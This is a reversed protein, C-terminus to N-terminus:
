SGLPDKDRGPRATGRSIQTREEPRSRSDPRHLLVQRGRIVLGLEVPNCKDVSGVLRCIRRKKFKDVQERYALDADYSRLSVIKLGYRPLFVGKAINERRESSTRVALERGPSMREPLVLREKCLIPNGLTYKLESILDLYDSRHELFAAEDQGRRSIAFLSFIIGLVVAAFLSVELVSFGAQQGFLYGRSRVLNGRISIPM